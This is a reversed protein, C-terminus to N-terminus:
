SAGRRAIIGRITNERSTVPELHSPRVCARNRCLHDLQLGEPIAGVMFEYAVRHAYFLDGIRRFRVRGHGKLCYGQWQWCGNQTEKVRRWFRQQEDHTLKM